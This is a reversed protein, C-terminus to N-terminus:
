RQLVYEGPADQLRASDQSGGIPPPAVPEESHSELFRV